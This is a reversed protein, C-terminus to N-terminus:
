IIDTGAQVTKNKMELIDIMDRFEKQAVWQFRKWLNSLFNRIGMAYSFWPSCAEPSHHSVWELEFPQLVPKMGILCEYIRETQLFSDSYYVFLIVSYILVLNCNINLKIGSLIHFSIYASSLHKSYMYTHMCLNESKTLLKYTTRIHRQM